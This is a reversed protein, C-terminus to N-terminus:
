STPSGLLRKCQLNGSQTTHDACRSERARLEDAGRLIVVSHSSISQQRQLRHAGRRLVHWRVPYNRFVADIKQRIIKPDRTGYGTYTSGLVFIGQKRTAGIAREGNPYYTEDDGNNLNVIMVGVAKAGLAAWATWQPSGPDQYSPM